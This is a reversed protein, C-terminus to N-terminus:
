KELNTLFYQKFRGSLYAAVRSSDGSEFVQIGEDGEVILSSIYSLLELGPDSLETPALLLLITRVNMEENNMAPITLSHKLSYISFSPKLVTESRCHYLALNTNPVGLGGLKQRKILQDVLQSSDTVIKDKELFEAAESLIDSVNGDRELTAHRFSELVTIMLNSLQKVKEFYTIANQAKGGYPAREINSSAAPQRSDRSVIWTEKIERRINEIEKETLLPNVIVYDKDEMPLPITSLILDYDSLTVHNLDFLSVNHLQNIEPIEKQIRSALMKSSGIGSSCVILAKLPQSSKRQELVSGFHMVLFGIEEDPITLSPFTAEVAQKVIHFLDQYDARVKDLLPNHIKLQQRIRYIARELHVILGQFLTHNEILRTGLLGDMKRILEKVKSELETNLSEFLLNKDYRLKAGRLHVTIYGIEDTPLDVNFLERLQFTIKEAMEYEKTGKLQELADSAFEIKEGQRIREIALALHVILGIYASDAISYPLGKYVEDVVREVQKLQDQNVMGLLRNSIRDFRHSSKKQINEKILSIFEGEDLNEEILSSMARRKAQESGDVEVGYSRKRTLLLGFPALWNEIENLDSTVTATTIGLDNALSLLKIPESAELLECLMFTKREDKTMESHTSNLVASQLVKKDAESGEIEIGVGAQRNLSLGYQDLIGELGQLDRHITRSSVGLQQAIEKVTVRNGEPQLLIELIQRERAAMYM